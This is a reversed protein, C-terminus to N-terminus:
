GVPQVRNHMSPHFTPHDLDNNFDWVDRNKAPVIRFTHGVMCAPCLATWGLIQYPPKYATMPRLLTM